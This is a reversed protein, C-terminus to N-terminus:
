PNIQAFYPAIEDPVDAEQLHKLLTRVRNQLTTDRNSRVLPTAQDFAQQDLDAFANHLHDLSGCLIRVYDPHHLNAALAAQAPQDELDRGLHARGVRRRLKQKENGFFHEDVNNTREVVAIVTGDTDRIVPHGFLQAKYKHFYKLIIAHPTTPKALNENGVRRNLDNLYREVQKEIEKLRQAELAPLGVPQYRTDARPLEADTLRLTNRAQTFAQWGKELRGVADQFRKDKELRGMLGRLHSLARKEAQSRPTPVWIDARHMADRCRQFFELHPLGFPYMADKKGEGQIVWYVLALLDERVRGPGFRGKKQDKGRYFKLDKLLQRLDSRVHSQKLINRLLAYPKDFLKGGVVGLFHYHCVFDPIGRQALPAVANKGPQGLDRVTAIPDGFLEITREVIPKLHEESESEIKGACLVWKKFGDMCVFLGGKGYESTADIHLPYGHEQMVTKLYPARVLHLVELYLLFRDCLNSVSGASLKFGRKRFLEDRIEERQKRRLYRALGVYVILDYGFRQRPRVIRALADSKIVPHLSYASCKKQVELAEFLGEAYTAVTRNKTRVVELPAQCVACNDAEAIFDIRPLHHGKSATARTIETSSWRAQEAISWLLNM